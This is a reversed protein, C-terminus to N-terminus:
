YLAIQSSRVNRRSNTSGDTWVEFNIRQGPLLETNPPLTVTQTHTGSIGSGPGNAAIVTGGVSVRVGYNNSTRRSNWTVSWSGSTVFHETIDVYVAVQWASQIANFSGGSWSLAYREFIPNGNTDYFPLRTLGSNLIMDHTTVGSHKGILRVNGDTLLSCDQFMYDALTVQSTDLDPVQVLSSCGQFMHQMSIVQSTDLDPAHTLSSCNQFMSYTSMINSTDLGSVSTLSSCDRFMYYMITVQSTDMGSVSTLSSCRQFMSDMNTVQSTDLDSVSTLSSCNRFMYRMDTVNSSDMDPVSTLSSCDQFMYSMNTAQSTDLLFPLAEVTDHTTGFDICAQRFQDRSGYTSTGTITVLPWLGDASYWPERTLAANTLMGTTDVNPHKGLLRVNGDTLSVCNQFMNNAVTVKSTNLDPIATLANCSWFMASMDTVNSTDMEPVEKLALFDGFMWSLNTAESTDIKFPLKEITMYNLGRRTLEERIQLNAERPATATIKMVSRYVIQGDMMAEGITVGNYQMAGIRHGDYELAM